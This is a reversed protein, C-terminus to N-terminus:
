KVLYYEGIEKNEKKLIGAEIKSYKQRLILKADRYYEKTGGQVKHNFIHPFVILAQQKSNVIKEITQEFEQFIPAPAIFQPSRKSQLLFAHHLKYSLFVKQNKKFNPFKNQVALANEFIIQPFFKGHKNSDFLFSQSQAIGSLNLLLTISILSTKLTQNSLRLTFQIGMTAFYILSPILLIFRSTSPGMFSLALIQLLWWSTFYKFLESSKWLKEKLSAYIGITVMLSLGFGLPPNSGLSQLFSEHILDASFSKSIELYNKLPPSFPFIISAAINELFNIKVELFNYSGRKFFDIISNKSLWLAFFVILSTLFYYKVLFNIKRKNIAILVFWLRFPTYYFLGLLSVPILVKLQDKYIYSLYFFLAVGQCTGLIRSYYFHWPCLLYFILALYIVQKKEKSESLGIELIKKFLYIEGIGMLASLTRALSLSFFAPVSFLYSALMEWRTYEPSFLYFAFDQWSRQGLNVIISEDFEVAQPSFFASLVRLSVLAIFIWRFFAVQKLHLSDELNNVIM